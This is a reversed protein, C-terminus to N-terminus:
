LRPRTDHKAAVRIKGNERRYDERSICWVGRECINVQSTPWNELVVVRHWETKEKRERTEADNWYDTTAISMNVVLGGNQTRRQEPDDGLHGILTVKNVGRAM